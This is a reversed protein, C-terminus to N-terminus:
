PWIGAKAKLYLDEFGTLDNGRREPASRGPRSDRELEHIGYRKRYGIPQMIGQSEPAIEMDYRQTLVSPLDGPALYGGRRRFERSDAGLKFASGLANYILCKTLLRPPPSSGRNRFDRAVVLTLPCRIGEGPGHFTIPYMREVTRLGLQSIGGAV